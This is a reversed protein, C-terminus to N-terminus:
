QSLTRNINQEAKIEAESKKRRRTGTGTKAKPSVPSPSPTVQSKNSGLSGDNANTSIQGSSNTANVNIESGGNNSQPRIEQNPRRTYAYLIFGLAVLVVAGLVVYLMLYAKQHLASWIHALLPKGPEEEEQPKLGGEELRLHTNVSKVLRRLHSELPPTVADLWQVSGLYLELAENPLVDEIRLPLVPVDVKDACACERRVFRSSNAQSSFILLMLKSKSIARVIATEFVEGFPIDRPAYWCKIGEDELAKCVADATQRDGKAYSIFVDHAM